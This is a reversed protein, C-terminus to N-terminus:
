AGSLFNCSERAVFLIISEVYGREEVKNRIYCFICEGMVCKEAVENNRRSKREYLRPGTKQRAKEDLLGIGTEHARVFNLTYFSM